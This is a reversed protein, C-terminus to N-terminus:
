VAEGKHKPRQAVLMYNVDMDSSLQWRDAFPNYIVGREGTVQLGGHEIAAELEVPTVFKDWQHTGRPLWRLVYEAGVIALAFSKLTRNLTAIIMLGGPKVMTACTAVFADVDTVHEVVEMALVVDFREKAAALVEATTARYDIAVGADGAHSQAAAVNDESPDAGVMEAGLRALPESLIGGGCGIDLMRLRKLCDLKKPDRNFRATAQDRIYGLRVPNFKHLAAMPGRPNWWDAAHRSFREVEAADVSSVRAKRTVM